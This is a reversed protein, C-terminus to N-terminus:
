GAARVGLPLKIMLRLADRRVAEILGPALESM